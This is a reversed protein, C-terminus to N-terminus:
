QEAESRSHKDQLHDRVIHEACTVKIDTHIGAAPVATSGEHHVVSPGPKQGAHDAPTLLASRPSLVANVASQPVEQGPDSAGHFSRVQVTGCVSHVLVVFVKIKVM